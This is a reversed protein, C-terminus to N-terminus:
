IFHNKEFITRKLFIRVPYILEQLRIHPQELNSIRGAVALCGNGVTKFYAVTLETFVIKMCNCRFNCECILHKNWLSMVLIVVLFYWVAISFIHPFDVHCPLKEPSTARSTIKEFFFGNKSILDLSTHTGFKLDTDKITQNPSKVCIRVRM